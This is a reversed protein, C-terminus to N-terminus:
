RQKLVAQHILSTKGDDTTVHVLGDDTGAWLVGAKVPSEAFAFITEYWEPGYAERTIPGWYPGTEPDM